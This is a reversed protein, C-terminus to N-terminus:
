GTKLKKVSLLLMSLQDASLQKESFLHQQTQSLSTITQLILLQIEPLEEASFMLSLEEKLWIRAEGVTKM